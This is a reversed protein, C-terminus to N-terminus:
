HSDRWVENINFGSALIQFLTHTYIHTDLTPPCGSYLCALYSSLAKFPVLRLRLSAAQLGPCHPPMLRWRGRSIQRRAALPSSRASACLFSGWQVIANWRFPLSFPVAAPHHCWGRRVVLGLYCFQLPHTATQHVAGNAGSKAWPQCILWQRIFFFNEFPPPKDVEPPIKYDSYSGGLHLLNLSHM